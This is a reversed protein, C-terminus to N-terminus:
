FLDFPANKSLADISILLLFLIWWMFLVRLHATKHYFLRCIRMEILKKRKNLGILKQNGLLAKFPKVVNLTVKVVFKLFMEAVMTCNLRYSNSQIREHIHLTIQFMWRPRDSWRQFGGLDNLFFWENM